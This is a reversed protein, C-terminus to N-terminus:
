GAGQLRRRITEDLRSEVLRLVSDGEGPPLEIAAFFHRRSRLVLTERASALWRAVTARHVQHQAALQDLGLGDLTHQRLLLQDRSPLSDLARQFSERFAARYSEKLFSM